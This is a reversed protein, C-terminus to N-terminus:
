RSRCAGSRDVEVFPRAEDSCLVQARGVRSAHPLELAWKVDSAWTLMGECAYQVPGYRTIPPGVGHMDVAPFERWYRV